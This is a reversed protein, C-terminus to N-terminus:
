LVYGKDINCKLFQVTAPEAGTITNPLFAPPPPRSNNDNNM